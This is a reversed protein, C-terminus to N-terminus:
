LIGELPCGDCKAQPRCFEKGVKVILAHYENFIKERPTLASMFMRQISEYDLDDRFVGHRSFVRKTYADVVFVPRKFAYLLISDCTEPGIGNVQLLQRRLEDTAVFSM